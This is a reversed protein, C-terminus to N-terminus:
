LDEGESERERERVCVFLEGQRLFGIEKTYLDEEGGGDM